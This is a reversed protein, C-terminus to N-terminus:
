KVPVLRKLEEHWNVVVQIEPRAPAGDADQGPVVLGLFKGDPTIDFQRPVGPPGADFPRPVATPNGFAVTPQTTVPVVEFGKPRPTYFLDRGSASWVPHHPEDGSKAALQYKKGTAPFSQVYM